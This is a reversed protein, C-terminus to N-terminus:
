IAIDTIKDIKGYLIPIVQALQMTNGHRQLLEMINVLNHVILM